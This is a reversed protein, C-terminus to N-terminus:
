FSWRLETYATSNERLNGFFSLRPGRFLDAGIVGKWRDTFAYTVKPRIAYDGRPFTLVGVLEGELTENLWKHSIRLSAGHQVQDLQNTQVAQQIAVSQQLPDQIKFPSRFNVVVRLIYQLNVNLYEFFTRDGGVVMFFFPNKMDPNIGEPDETFTYAAEGRLGYRGLTTAADAGIVRIRHNSLLLDVGSASVRDIGLDPFPDFGDFYSLSWDVAKGTQDIKIAWQRLTEAPVRERLTFPPGPRRIPITDSEFEPLWVGTLSLGGLYYTAKVAPTGLRQDDDEPVLLTLDKPTLNDTPNIRDARGWVIIQKGVRLDMAGLNLDLYAERLAGDTEEERFLEQNKVRGEVFLSANPGLKPQAKLWLAAVALHERDDLTRSSSWYGMRISGSMGAQQTLNKVAAIRDPPEEAFLRAAWLLV